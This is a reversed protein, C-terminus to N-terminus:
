FSSVLQVIFDEIQRTSITTAQQTAGCCESFRIGYAWFLEKTFVQLHIHAALYDQQHYLIIKALMYLHIM